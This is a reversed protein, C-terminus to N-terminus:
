KFAEMAAANAANAKETLDPAIDHANVGGNMVSDEAGAYSEAIFTAFGPIVTGGYPIPEKCNELFADFFPGRGYTDDAGPFFTRVKDWVTQSLTIPLADMSLPKGDANTLTSYAEIKALWGEENWNMFKLLEYAERPHETASSIGGFDLTGMSHSSTTGNAKPVSYPVYVLGLDLYEQTAFLNNFTWWADFQYAIKGSYGAWMTRDGFAAEAEDSDFAPAHYKGNILEAQQNLGDAWNTMDFKTGDWGFEGWVTDSSAVPYWTVMTRYQNFGYIGQEPVTMQKISATMDEWTWDTLPMEVNLQEFVTKNAYVVEPFFKVPTAWKKDTGYYGFKGENITTLVNDAEPDNEWFETMDGLLDNQIAFDCEGLIWFADPMQGTAVLNLLSDNYGDLALTVVEVKINPYKKMFQDALYKTLVENEWSVYTLTIEETTMPPLSKVAEETVEPTAEAVEETSGQEQVVAAGDTETTEKKSQCATFASICLALVLILSLIKKMNKM